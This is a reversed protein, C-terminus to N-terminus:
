DKKRIFSCFNLNSADIHYNRTHFKGLGIRENHVYRTFPAKEKKKCKELLQPSNADLGVVLEEWLSYPKQNALRRRLSM